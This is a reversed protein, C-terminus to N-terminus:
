KEDYAHSLRFPPLYLERTGKRAFRVPKGIDPNLPAKGMIKGLKARVSEDLKDYVRIFHEAQRVPKAPM